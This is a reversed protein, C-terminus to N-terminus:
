HFSISSSKCFKLLGTDTHQDQAPHEDDAEYADCSIAMTGQSAAQTMHIVRDTNM